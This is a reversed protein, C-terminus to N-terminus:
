SVWVLWSVHNLKFSWNSVFWVKLTILNKLWLFPSVSIPPSICSTSTVPLLWKYPWLFIICSTFTFPLLWKYPWVFIICSTSTFPFLWKYPWVFIICSTSTFPFLWKYPWVFIIGPIEHFLYGCSGTGEPISLYDGNFSHVSWTGKIHFLSYMFHLYLSVAMQLTM